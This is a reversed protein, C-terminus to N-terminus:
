NHLLVTPGQFFIQFDIFTSTRKKLTQLLFSVRLTFVYTPGKDLADEKPSAGMTQVHNTSMIQGSRRPELKLEMTQSTQYKSMMILDIMIQGSRRAVVNLKRTQTSHRSEFDNYLLRVPLYTWYLLFCNITLIKGIQFKYRFKHQKVKM